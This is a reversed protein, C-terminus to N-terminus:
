MWFKHKIWFIKSRQKKCRKYYFNHSMKGRDEDRNLTANATCVPVSVM